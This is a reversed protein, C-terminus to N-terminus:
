QQNFYQTLQERHNKDQAHKEWYRLVDIIEQDEKDFYQYVVAAQIQHYEEFGYELKENNFYFNESGDLNNKIFLAGDLLPSRNELGKGFAIAKVFNKHKASDKMYNSTWYRFVDLGDIPDGKALELFLREFTKSVQPNNPIMSLSRLSPMMAEYRFHDIKSDIAAVIEDTQIGDYALRCLIRIAKYQTWDYVGFGIEYLLPIHKEKYHFLIEFISDQCMEMWGSLISIKASIPHLEKPQTPNNHFYQCLNKAEEAPIELSVKKATATFQEFDEYATAVEIIKEELIHHEM